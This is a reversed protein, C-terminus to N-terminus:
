RGNAKEIAIRGTAKGTETEADVNIVETVAATAIVDVRGFSNEVEVMEGSYPHDQGYAPWVFSMLCLALGALVKKLERFMITLQRPRVTFRFRHRHRLYPRLTDPGSSGTGAM